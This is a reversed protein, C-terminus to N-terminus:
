SCKPVHYSPDYGNVGPAGFGAEVTVSSPKASTGAVLIAGGVAVGAFVILPVVTTSLLMIKRSQM